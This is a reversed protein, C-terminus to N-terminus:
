PGQAEQQVHAETSCHWTESWLLQNDYIGKIKTACWDIFRGIIPGITVSSFLVYAFIDAFHSAPFAHLLFFFAFLCTYHLVALM